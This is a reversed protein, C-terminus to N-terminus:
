GEGAGGGWGAREWGGMELGGAGRVVGVVWGGMGGGGGGKIGRGGLGLLGGSGSGEACVCM